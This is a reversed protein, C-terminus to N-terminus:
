SDIAQCFRRIALTNAVGEELSFRPRWGLAQLADSSLVQREIPTEDANRSMPVDFEVEVGAQAAVVRAFGAISVRVDPNALNYAQGPEGSTLVSLLGSVADAVYNYSRVQAGPSHLVVNDGMLAARVFQENARSDARSATPGYTHCPRVILCSTGVQRQWSVCLNEAARKALPYSSRMSLPDVYGQYSEQYADIRPDGQGYVEGSSVYLFKECGHSVGWELMAHTGQINAVITGVPDSTISAPHANSAAHVIVDVRQDLTISQSVDLKSVSLEAGFPNGSFREELHGINRGTAVVRVNVGLVARMACIADVLFSGILGGAGTVLITKGDLSQPSVVSEASISLDRVYQPCDYIRSM